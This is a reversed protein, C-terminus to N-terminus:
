CKGKLPRTKGEKNFCGRHSPERLTEGGGLGKRELLPDVTSKEMLVLLM